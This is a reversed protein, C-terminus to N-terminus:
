PTTGPKRILGAYHTRLLPIANLIEAAFWAKPAVFRALPPALLVPELMVECDPFLERVERKKLGRIQPNNPNNVRLDLWLVAGRPKLVRLMEQAVARKLGPDFMNTFVLIQSLLDFSESAWPLQAANGLHLDALPLRRKARELRDPM